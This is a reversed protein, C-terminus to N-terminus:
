PRRRRSSGPSRVCASSSSYGRPNSPRNLMVHVDAFRPPQRPLRMLPLQKGDVAAASTCSLYVCGDHPSAFAHTRIFHKTHRHCLPSRSVQIAANLDDAFLVKRRMLKQIQVLQRFRVAITVHFALDFMM